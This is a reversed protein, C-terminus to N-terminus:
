GTWTRPEDPLNDALWDFLAMEEAVSLETDLELGPSATLDGPNGPNRMRNTSLQM